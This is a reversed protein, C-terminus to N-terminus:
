LKRILLTYSLQMNEACLWEAEAQPSVGHFAKRHSQHIQRFGYLDVAYPEKICFNGADVVTPM